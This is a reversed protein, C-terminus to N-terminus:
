PNFHLSRHLARSRGSSQVDVTRMQRTAQSTISKCQVTGATHWRLQMTQVNYLLPAALMAIVQLVAAHAVLRRAIPERAHLGHMCSAQMCQVHRQMQLHLWLRSRYVGASPPFCEQQCRALTSTEPGAFIQAPPSSCAACGSCAWWCRTWRRGWRTPCRQGRRRWLPPLPGRRPPLRRGVVGARRRLM